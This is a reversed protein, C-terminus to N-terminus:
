LMDELQGTFIQLKNTIEARMLAQFEAQREELNFIQEGFKDNLGRLEKHLQKVQVSNM